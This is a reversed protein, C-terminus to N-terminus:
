VSDKNLTTESVTKEDNKFFSTGFASILIFIIGIFHYLTFKENNFTVGAIVTVITTLRGVASVTSAQIQSLAFNGMSTAAISCIISLFLLGFLNYPNALPLFYSGLSGEAIHLVLNIANFTVAGAVAMFYTLEVASFFSSSKRSYTLFLGGSLMAIIMFIIGWISNTGEEKSCLVMFVAGIIGIFLFLKQMASTKEKLIITEAAVTVVPSLALIIGATIATTNKIGLTEFIFYLVPEFLAACFLPKLNKGKFNIKIIGLARLAIFFLASMLFRFSLIDFTSVTQLLRGTFLISIGYLICKLILMIYALTKKPM